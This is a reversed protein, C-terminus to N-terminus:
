VSQLRHLLDISFWGKELFSKISM